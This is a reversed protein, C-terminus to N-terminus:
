EESRRLYFQSFHIFNPPFLAVRDGDQVPASPAVFLHNRYIVNVEDVAIGLAAMVDAVSTPGGGPLEVLGEGGAFGPAKDRLVSGLKVTVHM